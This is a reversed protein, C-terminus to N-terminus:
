SLANKFGYALNGVIDTLHGTIHNSDCLSVLHQLGDSERTDVQKRNNKSLDGRTHFCSEESIGGDSQQQGLGICCPPVVNSSDVVGHMDHYPLRKSGM